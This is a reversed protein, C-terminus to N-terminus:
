DPADGCASCAADAVDCDSSARTCVERYRDEDAHEDALACIRDRLECIAEATACINACASSDSPVSDSMARPRNSAAPKRRPGAGDQATAKKAKAPPPDVKAARAPTQTPVAPPSKEGGVSFEDAMAVGHRRLVAEHANLEAEYAALSEGATGGAGVPREATATPDSMTEATAATKAACGCFFCLATWM